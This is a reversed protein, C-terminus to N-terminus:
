CLIVQNEEDDTLLGDHTPRLPRSMNGQMDSVPLFQGYWLSSLFERKEGFKLVSIAAGRCVAIRLMFEETWSGRGLFVCGELYTSIGNMWIHVREWRCIDSSFKLLVSWATVRM